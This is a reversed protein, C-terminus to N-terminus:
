NYYPLIEIINTIGFITPIGMRLSIALLDTDISGRFTLMLDKFPKAYTKCHM